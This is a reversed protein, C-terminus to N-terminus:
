AGPATLTERRDSWAVIAVGGAILTLGLLLSVTVPEDLILASLLLGGAPVGLMALSTTVAPLARNISIVAWVALATALSGNYLLVLVSGANWEIAAGSDGALAIVLGIAAAILLQWPVADMPTCRWVHRKVVVIGTAWCLASALLMANGIVVRVDSWDFSMPNFLVALGALGALLGLARLATLREGLFLIAGPVVWIPTTYALLAARGAPVFQLGWHVLTMFLGIQITGVVAIMPWDHRPPVRLRGLLALLIFLTAAGLGLRLFTFWFPPLWVLGIKMIPWNVGWFCVVVGLLGYAAAASHPAPRDAPPNDAPDTM